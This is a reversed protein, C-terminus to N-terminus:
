SVVVTGTVEVDDSLGAVEVVALVSAVVIASTTVVASVVAVAAAVVVTGVLVVEVSFHIYYNPHLFSVHKAQHNRLNTILLNRLEIRPSSTIAESLCM